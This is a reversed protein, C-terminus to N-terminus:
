QSSRPGIDRRPGDLEDPEARPGIDRRPGELDDQDTRPGIDRRPGELDDQDTRPGIDRRPGALDKDRKPGGVISALARDFAEQSVSGDEGKSDGSM